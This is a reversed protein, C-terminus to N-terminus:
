KIRATVDIQVRDSITITRPEDGLVSRIINSFHKRTELTYTKHDM